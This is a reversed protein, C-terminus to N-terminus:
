VVSTTAQLQVICAIMNMVREEYDDANCEIMLRDNEDRTVGNRAIISRMFTKQNESFPDIVNGNEDQKADLNIVMDNFTMGNDDIEFGGPTKMVHLSISDSRSCRFPVKIIIFNTKIEEDVRNKLWTSFVRAMYKVNEEKRPNMVRVIKEGDIVTMLVPLPVYFPMWAIGIRMEDNADVHPSIWKLFNDVDIEKDDGEKKIIGHTSVSVKRAKISVTFLPLDDRRWFDADISPRPRFDKPIDKMSFIPKLSTKAVKNLDALWQLGFIVSEPTEPV